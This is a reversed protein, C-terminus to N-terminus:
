ARQVLRKSHSLASIFLLFFSLSPTPFFAKQRLFTTCIYYHQKLTNSTEVLIRFQGWVVKIKLITKSPHFPKKM